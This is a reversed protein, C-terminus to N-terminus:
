LLRIQQDRIQQDRTQRKFFILFINVAGLTEVMSIARHFGGTHGGKDLLEPSRGGRELERLLLVGGSDALASDQGDVMGILFVACIITKDAMIRDVNVITDHEGGSDGLINLVHCSDFGFM